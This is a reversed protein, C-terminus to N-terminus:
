FLTSQPTNTSVLRYLVSWDPSPLDCGGIRSSSPGSQGPRVLSNPGAGRAKGVNNNTSRPHDPLTNQRTGPPGALTAGFESRSGSSSKRLAPECHIIKEYRKLKKLIERDTFGMTPILNMNPRVSTRDNKCSGRRWEPRGLIACRDFNNFFVTKAPSGTRNLSFNPTLLQPVARRAM